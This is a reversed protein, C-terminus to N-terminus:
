VSQSLFQPFTIPPQCVYLHVAPHSHCFSHSHALPCVSICTSLLSVTVSVTPTTIPPQSVHLHVASQSDCFSHSHSLPSVSMCTSLLTVTVSVPPSHYPASLYVLSSWDIFNKKQHQVTLILVVQANVDGNDRFFLGAVGQPEDVHLQASESTPLIPRPGAADGRSFRRARRKNGENNVHWLSM